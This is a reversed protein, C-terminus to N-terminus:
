MYRVLEEQTYNDQVHLVIWEEEQGYYGSLEEANNLYDQNDSVLDSAMKAYQLAEENSMIQAVEKAKYLRSFLYACEAKEKGTFNNMLVSDACYKFYPM